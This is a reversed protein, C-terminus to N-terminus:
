SNRAIQSALRRKRKLYDDSFDIQLQCWIPLHDSMKYTRATKYRHSPKEKPYESEDEDRYVFDFFPFVGAEAVDLQRSVDPAIFAIQDFPKDQKANTYKGHLNAPIQFDNRTLALFTEDSTNFVNFDGLLIANNAWRDNQKMRKKLLRAALEADKHRQKVNASNKGYFMHSSCITFKFWGARFGALFPSRSFAEDTVYMGNKKKTEPVLEGALGGFSIKRSDYIFATRESNGSRGFTVDSVLYKWWGGLLRMLYDLNDLDDRVEQVAIVDFRSLIEAIYILPELDRGGYKSGGFERLNWSALLLTADQTKRPISDELAERLRLCGNITRKGEATRGNIAQYFPM